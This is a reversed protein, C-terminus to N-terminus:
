KAHLTVVEGGLGDSGAKVTIAGPEGKKSRVIVLALGNFAPRERSQFSVFSTADGNDTAIIEGAGEITFKIKNNATPVTLGDQDEVRVTIFSLDAGDAAITPRDASLALRAPEGTTQVRDSAWEKGNKYAVVKLEGPQYKVDNWSLRYEFSGKQKRGLSQGNLFLEAEDGSTYVFVPTTQGERGSWNWHPLIHAMPFDPRWRAQYLYFRDKPFGALDVIGFYSSRAPPRNKNLRQLEAEQEARQQADGHFNLLLTADSNFPTPEGLYDFGTWVFEGAIAPYKDLAAFEADPLSGWGPQQLDYSSVQWPTRPEGPFFYEGRSSITSASESSYGPLHEHGPHALFKGYLDPGGYVGAAYNMGHVDVMKEVGSFATEKPASIGCTAPRTPDLRHFIETNERFLRFKEAHNQEDVENGSSWLIISPHNRFHRVMAALDKEHWEAYLCAYDNATKATLFCDFAECMVMLGLKDAAALLEPSPPNHSTRLANCGFSQLIELERETARQNVAAGLAGLDHHNCTGYLPVRKGNLLFGNDHTFEITRFGFPQDYVDVTKGGVSVTTRALYRNPAAIDWLKPKVLSAALDITESGNAGIEKEVSTAVAVRKGVVDDAGIEFIETKVSALAAKGGQNDVTVAVKAEGSVASIKPTTVFVGWQGVHVQETKVLRVNRYIGAGPYWRSGWQETDLRVALVNEAGFKIKDTLDLRFGQYGYPWGGVYEGNLWVQANAMAGDFEVGIRKGADAASVTFHKRYWGIGQWPLKGTNGPLDYRFPGEIAWDHPVDLKRWASDDFAPSQPAGPQQVLRNEIAKGGADALTIERISAWQGPPVGTVRVRVFRAACPLPQWQKEDTSGEIVGRYDPSNTEWAIEARALTREGGLDIMLWQNGAASSACWRMNPDGDMALGAVNGKGTEESSATLTFLRSASGPEALRSGDAQLGFRAFCWGSNFSETQRLSEAVASFGCVAFTAAGFILKALITNM